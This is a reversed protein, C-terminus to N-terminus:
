LKVWNQPDITNKKCIGKKLKQKMTAHQISSSKDAGLNKYVKELELDKIMTEEDLQVHDSKELKGRKFTAKACKSLGFEMSIDDSFGKVIRLLGEFESDDESDDRSLESKAGM